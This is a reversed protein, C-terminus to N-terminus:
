PSAAPSSPGAPRATVRPYLALGLAAWVLARIRRSLALAGGGGLGLMAVPAANSAELAGINGPIVAAAISGLRAFTEIALTAVAGASVGVAWLVLWVEFAMVAYCVAPLLTLVILRRRSGRLMDLLVHEVDLVFRVIRSAELTRGTWRDLRAVFRGLYDGTRHRVIQTAAALVVLAALSTLMFFTSWGHPLALRTAAAFSIVGALAISIIAFAARELAISAACIEPTVRDYLLVVKLADGALGRITFFGIADAALRVRFLRSFAPRAGDPFAVAWGWTRLLHWLISPLLIAPLAFGLRKASDLTEDLDIYALTLGFLLVGLVIAAASVLQPVSRIM